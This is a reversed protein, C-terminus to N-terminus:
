NWFTLPIDEIAFEVLARSGLWKYIWLSTTKGNEIETIMGKKIFGASEAVDFWL